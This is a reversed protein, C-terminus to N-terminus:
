HLGCLLARHLSGGARIGEACADTANRSTGTIDGAAYVGAVSTLHFEDVKVIPGCLGDEIECGLMEAATSNLKTQPSVYLADLEVERENMFVITSLKTGRGELKEIMSPDVKVGRQALIDLCDPSPAAGGNLFLTVQGWEAVILAEQVSSPSTQLVGLRRDYFECGQQHSYHLVSKGWREYLGPLNPLVDSVGFALIMKRSHVVQGTKLITSFNGDRGETNVVSDDMFTVNPYELLQARARGIVGHPTDGDFGFIGHLRSSFRSRSLGADIVCVTHNARAIQLAASMGAFGAGVIVADFSKM